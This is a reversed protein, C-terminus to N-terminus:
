RETITVVQKWVSGNLNMAVGQHLVIKTGTEYLPISLSLSAFHSAQPQVALSDMNKVM